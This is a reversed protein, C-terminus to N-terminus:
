PGEPHPYIEDAIWYMELVLAFLIGLVLVASRRRLWVARAPSLQAFFEPLYIASYFVNALIALVLLAGIARLNFAPQFHPWTLVLWALAGLMLMGNYVLRRPEWYRWAQNFIESM